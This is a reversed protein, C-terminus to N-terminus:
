FSGQGNWRSSRANAGGARARVFSGTPPFSTPGNLADKSKASILYRDMRSELEDVEDKTKLLRPSILWGLYCEVYLTFSQPWKSYDLGFTPANSIWKVYISQLDAFWFGNEDSFDNLPTRFYEDSALAATRLWDAPKSFAYRYGFPPEVSPTYDVRGSRTAFKWEAQELVFNRAGDTWVDDLLRRPESEDTLLALRRQKVHRLAGNYLSLQDTM